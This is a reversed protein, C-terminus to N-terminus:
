MSYSVKATYPVALLSRRPDLGYNVRHRKSDLVYTLIGGALLGRLLLVGKWMNKTQEQVVRYEHEAVDQETLFRYLENRVTVSPLNLNPIKGDLGDEAILWILSRGAAPEAVPLLRLMPFNGPDCELLEIEERFHNQRRLASARRSALSLVHQIIEWRDPHGELASQTGSTYVLQYRVHLIEDSEDLIDRTRFNIWDHTASLAQAFEAEEPSTSSTLKDIGMLKFSLIHEPQAVLIGGTSICEEYLAKLSDLGSQNLHVNRSFPLYFIRRNTLNGVRDALLQFMQTSLAKLVVVRVLQQRSAALATAILPVIVSSKGEGMNLQMVTNKGSIPNM